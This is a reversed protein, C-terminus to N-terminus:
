TVPDDAISGDGAGHTRSIKEYKLIESCYIPKILLERVIVLQTAKKMPLRIPEFARM